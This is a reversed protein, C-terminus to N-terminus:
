RSVQAFIIGEFVLVPGTAGLISLPQGSFFGYSVGVMANGILAEIVGIQNDTAESLLGGFTIIPALIAFFLFLTAGFCQTNLGDRFDSIYFKSKRKLDNM